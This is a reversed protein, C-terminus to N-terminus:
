LQPQQGPSIQRLRQQGLHHDQINADEPADTTRRMQQPPQQLHYPERGSSSAWHVASCTAAARMHHPYRGSFAMSNVRLCGFIKRLALFMLNSICCPLPPFRIRVRPFSSRGSNRTQPTGDETPSFLSLPGVRVREVAPAQLPQAAPLPAVGRVSRVCPALRDRISDPAKWTAM